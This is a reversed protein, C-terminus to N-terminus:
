LSHGASGSRRRADRASEHRDREARERPHPLDDDPSGCRVTSRPPLTRVGFV